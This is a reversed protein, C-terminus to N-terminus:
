RRVAAHEGGAHVRDRRGRVHAHRRGGRRLRGADTVCSVRRVEPYGVLWLCLDLAPVGLEVLAGGGAEARRQRWTPRLVPIRRTLWSGRVAYIDGMEGGAVFSRLATSTPGSGTRSGWSWAGAGRVPRPWCASSARRPSRWRASSSSTRGRRSRRVAMEEHVGNPTCMVIADLDERAFSRTPTSHRRSRGVAGRDDAGEGRRRRGVVALDVDEREALIPIHVVQSIAGTGVVAFRPTM